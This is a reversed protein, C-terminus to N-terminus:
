ADPGSRLPGTPIVIRQGGRAQRLERELSTSVYSILDLIDTETADLPAYLRFKKGSRVNVVAEGTADITAEAKPDNM